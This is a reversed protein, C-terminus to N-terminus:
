RLAGINILTQHAVSISREAPEDMLKDFFEDINRYGLVKLKLIVQELRCRTIEPVMYETFKEERAKTYLKFVEGKRLRGARGM